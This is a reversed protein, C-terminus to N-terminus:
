NTTNPVVYIIQTYPISKGGKETRNILEIEWEGNPVPPKIGWGNPIGTYKRGDPLTINSQLAVGGKSSFDTIEYMRHNSDTCIKFKHSVTTSIKGEGVNYVGESICTGDYTKLKDGLSDVIWGYNYGGAAMPQPSRVQIIAYVTLAIGVVLM